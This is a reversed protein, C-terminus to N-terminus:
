FPLTFLAFVCINKSYQPSTISASIQKGSHAKTLKTKTLGKGNQNQSLTAAFYKQTNPYIDTM